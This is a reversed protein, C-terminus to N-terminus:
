FVIRPNHRIGTLRSLNRYAEAFERQYPKYNEDSTDAILYEMAKAYLCQLYLDEVTKDEPLNLVDDMEELNYKLDGELNRAKFNTIYRASLTYDADPKPYFHLEAGKDGFELWYVSPQGAEEGNLFDAEKSLIPKLYGKAENLWVETLNGKPALVAPSGKTLKQVDKKIRFPFDELSWIYSNAQEVALKVAKQVEAFSTPDPDVISWRMNSINKIIDFYSKM